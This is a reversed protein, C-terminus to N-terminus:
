IFVCMCYVSPIVKIVCYVIKAIQIYGYHIQFIMIYFLSIFAMRCLTDQVLNQWMLTTVQYCLACLTTFCRRNNAILCTTVMTRCFLKYGHM